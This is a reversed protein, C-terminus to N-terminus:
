KFIKQTIEFADKKLWENIKGLLLEKTVEFQIENVSTRNELNELDPKFWPDREEIRKILYPRKAIFLETGEDIVEILHNCLSGIQRLGRWEENKM